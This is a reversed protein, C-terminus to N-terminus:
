IYIYLYIPEWKIPMTLVKRPYSLDIIDVKTCMKVEKISQTTAHDCDFFLVIFCIYQILELFGDYVRENAESKLELYGGFFIRLKM